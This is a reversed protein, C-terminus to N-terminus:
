NCTLEPICGYGVFREKGKGNPLQFDFVSVGRMKRGQYTRGDSSGFMLREGAKNKGLYLMVHSILNNTTYTGSWFLLDGPKLKSLDFSNFGKSTVRYLKANKKVWNMLGDADRPVDHLKSESLLYYITGSCDMGKKRPDASGYKYTLNMQTLKFAKLILEKVVPSYTSYNIIHEIIIPQTIARTSNENAYTVSFVIAFLISRSFFRFFFFM